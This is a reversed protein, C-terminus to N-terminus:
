KTKATPQGTKAAEPGGTDGRDFPVVKVSAGRRVKQSGEVIVRDGPMLGSSVLWKDGIARDVTIMRQQVKGWGDVILAVANGKPDRSVGQQPVLIAHEAIGEQVVARVYMGPLLTRQPNPFVIRLVFSGTSPDVAVESFKLTGELPYPTGDELLLKVRTQGPGADKVRGAAINRKLQLMNASSETVDVFIPDLQHITAFPNIQNVAALAGVTVNSRGIRGSIPATVRTYALNISASEVAAKNAEIDALAQQLSACADDYDQRSVADIPALEKYREVKSRVSTVNAEARALGAKASAYAARYPDPDIEYLEDGAKVDAGEIFFRKKIIGGVQPRVEAVLCPSTRGPLEQTLAVPTPQMIAVAVEPPGAQPPGAGDRSKGCGNSLFGVVLITLAVIIKSTQKIQM